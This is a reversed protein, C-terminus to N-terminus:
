FNDVIKQVAKEPLYKESEKLTTLKMKLFEDPHDVLRTLTEELADFDDFAYGWGTLGERFVDRHNDWLATIVPVGSMYADIITGPVGETRYHTPFILADYDRITEISEHPEVMGKYTIYDPFTMILNEFTEVYGDDIKGIIDLLLVTEKHKENIDKVAKVIDEIGKERMVRSFTCLRLPRRVEFSLSEREIPRINKFNPIVEVNNFGDSELAEKMSITEVFIKDLQQAQKKLIPRDKIYSPLWGGVVSYFLKHHYFKNVSESLPIFVRVSKQAPLMIVNSCLAVMKVLGWFLKLPNKKWGTTDVTMIQEKGVVGTLAEYISWTKAEQGGAKSKGEAFFGIIGVKYKM